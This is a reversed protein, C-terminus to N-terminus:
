VFTTPQKIQIMYNHVSEYMSCYNKSNQKSKLCVSAVYPSSDLVCGLICCDARCFAFNFISFQSLSRDINSCVTRGHTGTKQKEKFKFIRISICKLWMLWLPICHHGFTMFSFNYFRICFCLHIANIYKNANISLMSQDMLYILDLENSFQQHTRTDSPESSRGKSQRRENAKNNRKM